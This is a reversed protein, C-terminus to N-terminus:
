IIMLDSKEYISEDDTNILARSLGMVVGLIGDIRETSKEKSPKVNGAADSEIVVNSAMWALVPNGGHAIEGNIIMKELEKSPASLSAYGQGFQILTRDSSEAKSSDSKVEFGLEQLDTTIKQSGWRDFALERVDFALCDDGIQKLIFGYDIINGPTATIYGERVWVDYPVRDRKVRALMNDKPIFFRCLVHYVTEGSDPPFVWVLATTDINSSLDLGGYCRRGHLLAVDVPANCANWKDVSLWKTLSECWIGFNLRKVINQKSPMNIAENVQEEIYKPQISVGLNPNAKPWTDPNRWDDCDPCGETPSTVGKSACEECIDLTTMYAFWSENDVIRQLIKESYEHHAFCVTQRDYGSNSIEFILPNKRGKTGARMKNVVIDSPHEHIEDILAMHPRKGDLGRHESSIPRFFSNTKLYAINRVGIELRKSLSPSKEAFVCADRFLINAQELTVACSYIESGPERDFVLGYLGIGAAMPSNHTPIMERGALYMHSPSDVTICKVPVSEVPIVNRIHRITTKKNRVKKQWLRKRTLWFVPTDVYARFSIKYFQQRPYGDVRMSPNNKKSIHPKMGLSNLLEYLGYAIKDNTNTFTCEGTAKSITGDTDMLGRVLELRQSISARLYQVPIHKNSLLGLKRLQTRLGLMTFVLLKNTDCHPMISIDPWRSQVHRIIEEDSPHAVAHGRNERGDGLWVGLVYPPIPLDADPLQLPLTIDVSHNSAHSTPTWSDPLFLTELIQKTTHLRKATRYERLPTTTLIGAVMKKFKLERTPDSWKCVRHSKNHLTFVASDRGRDKRLVPFKHSGKLGQGDYVLHTQWLHEADAIINGDDFEVSYCDHNVMVPSVGIVTCPNGKDDFVKDGIEIQEMTTWGVSTPIPTFISIAKGNGKAVECFATRFRRSGDVLKWGFLSALIFQQWPQLVFPKGDFEGEYFVLFEEFFDIIHQASEWDFVLGKAKADRIDDFHRSCALRVWRCSLIKGSIVDRAYQEAPHLKSISKTPKKVPKKAPPKRPM